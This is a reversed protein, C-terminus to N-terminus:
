NNWKYVVWYYLFCLFPLHKKRSNLNQHWTVWVFCLKKNFFLTSLYMLFSTFPIDGRTPPRGGGGPTGKKLSFKNTLHNSWYTFWRWFSRNFLIKLFSPSSRNRGKYKLKKGGKRMQLKNHKGRGKLSRKSPQKSKLRQRVWDADGTCLHGHILFWRLCLFCIHALIWSIELRFSVYIRHFVYIIYQILFILKRNNVFDVWLHIGYHYSNVPNRNQYIHESWKKTSASHPLVFKFIQIPVADFHDNQCLKGWFDWANRKM